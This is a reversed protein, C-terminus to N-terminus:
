VAPKKPQANARMRAAMVAGAARTVELAIAPLRQCLEEYRSLRLAWVTASSMAEITAMHEGDTFLSPEGCIAGARLLVVRNAGPVAGQVLVQFTGSGILYMVRDTEGQKILVDGMRLDHRTLYSAFTRWQGADLRARFSDNSQLTQVSQILDTFETIPVAM